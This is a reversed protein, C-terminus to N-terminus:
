KPVYGVYTQSVDSFKTPDSDCVTQKTYIEDMGLIQTGTQNFQTRVKFTEAYQIKMVNNVSKFYNLSYTDLDTSTFVVQVTQGDDTTATNTVAMNNQIKTCLQALFGSSSTQVKSIFTKTSKTDYYLEGSTKSQLVGVISYLETAGDSSCNRKKMNFTYSGGFFTQTRFTTNKSQYAYCIRTAITREATSLDRSTQLAMSTSFESSGGGKNYQQGCSAITLMTATTLFLHNFQVIRKM